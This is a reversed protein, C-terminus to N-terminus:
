RTSRARALAQRRRQRRGPRSSSRRPTVGPRAAGRRGRAAGDAPQRRPGVGGLALLPRQGQGQAQGGVLHDVSAAPLGGTSSSSSTNESSSGSRLAPAAPWRAPRGSGASWRRRGARRAGHGVDTSRDDVARDVTARAPAAQHGPATAAAGTPAPAALGRGTPRSGRGAQHALRATGGVACGGRDSKASQSSMTPSRLRRGRGAREPQAFPVSTTATSSGAQAVWSRNRSASSSARIAAAVPESSTAAMSTRPAARSGPRLGGRVPELRGDPSTRATVGTQYVTLM